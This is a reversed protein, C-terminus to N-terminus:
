EEGIVFAPSESRTGLEASRTRSEPLLRNTAEVPKYFEYFEGLSQCVEQLGRNDIRDLLLHCVRRLLFNWKDELTDFAPVRLQEGNFYIVHGPV